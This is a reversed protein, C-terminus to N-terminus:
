ALIDIRGGITVDDGPRSTQTSSNFDARAAPLGDSKTNPKAHAVSTRRGEAETGKAADEIRAKLRSIESTLRQIEQQGEPTKASACNVCESLAKEYRALEARMGGTSPGSIQTSFGTSAGIAAVM